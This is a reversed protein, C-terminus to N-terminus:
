YANRKALVAQDLPLSPLVAGLREITRGDGYLNEFPGKMALTRRLAQSIAPINFEACDVVNGNRLRGNQRSGLNLCPTGLSASEIIGSSSNGVLADAQALAALYSERNFHDIVTLWGEAQMRDLYANISAGGADSNPRLVLAACGENNLTELLTEIQQAASAAEQVVPHFVVLARHYQGPRLPLTRALWGDDHRIGDALGVLGPAGVVWIHEPREGMRRLREASEENAAFHFHALKSIAHRFSEDLTGSLEGGHLHGVPIGLHVAALTAALMEGRDGLVLVLDPRDKSWLDLFGVLETALARGMEAGDAGSLAVPIQGALPLGSALIDKITNGYTPLLHQGTVVVYIQLEPLGSLGILTKEM